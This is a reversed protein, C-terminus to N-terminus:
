PNVTIDMSKRLWRELINVLKDGLHFAVKRGLFSL